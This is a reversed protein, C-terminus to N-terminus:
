RRRVAVLPSEVAPMHAYFRDDGALRDLLERLWEDDPDAQWPQFVLTGGTRLLRVLSEYLQHCAVPELEVVIFDLPGNLSPVVEAPKGLHVRIKESLSHRTVATEAMRSLSQSSVVLDIHGTLGFTAAVHFAAHTLGDGVALAYSSRVAAALVATERAKLHLQAPSIAEDQGAFEDALEDFPDPRATAFELALDLRDAVPDM